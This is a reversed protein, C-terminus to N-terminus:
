SINNLTLEALRSDQPRETESPNIITQTEGKLSKNKVVLSHVQIETM